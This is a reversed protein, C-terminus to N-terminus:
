LLLLLLLLPLFCVTTENSVDALDSLVRGLKELGPVGAASPMLSSLASIAGFPLCACRTLRLRLDVEDAEYM